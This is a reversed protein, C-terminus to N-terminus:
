GEGLLEGAQNWISAYAGGLDPASGARPDGNGDTGGDEAYITATGRAADWAALGDYTWLGTRNAGDVNCMQPQVSGDRRQIDSRLGLYTATIETQGPTNDAIMGLPRIGDVYNYDSRDRFWHCNEFETSTLKDADLKDLHLFLPSSSVHRLWLDCNYFRMHQYFPTIRDVETPQINDTWLNNNYQAIIGQYNGSGYLNELHVYKFYNKNELHIIDAHVSDAGSETSNGANVIASNQVCFLDAPNDYHGQRYASIGDVRWTRNGLDILCGEIFVSPALINQYRGATADYPIPNALKLVDHEGKTGGGATAATENIELPFGRVTEEVELRWELGTVRLHRVNRVEIMFDMAAPTGGPRNAQLWVDGGNGDITVRWCAFPGWTGAAFPRSPQVPDNPHSTWGSAQDVYPSGDHKTVGTRQGYTVWEGTITQGAPGTESFGAGPRGREYDTVVLPDGLAPPRTLKATDGWRSHVYDGGASGDPPMPGRRWLEVGNTRLAHVGGGFVRLQALNSGFADM